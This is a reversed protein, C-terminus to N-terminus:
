MEGTYKYYLKKWGLVIGALYFLNIVLKFVPAPISTPRTICKTNMRKIFYSMKPISMTGNKSIDEDILLGGFCQFFRYNDFGPRYEVVCKLVDAKNNYAIHAKGKPVTISKGSPVIHEVSDIRIRLEGEQVKFIEDQNLHIHEFPVYGKPQVTWEIIFAEETNSICRFHEKAIKNSFGEYVNTAM